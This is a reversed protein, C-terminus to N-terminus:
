TSNTIAGHYSDTIKGIHTHMDFLEDSKLISNKKMSKVLSSDEMLMNIKERLDDANRPEFLAGNYGDRVFEPNGGINSALVPAGAMMGEAIVVSANEYWISPIVIADARAYLSSLLDSSIKGLFIFNERMNYHDIASNIRELEQPHALGTIAVNFKKGSAKIGALAKVLYEGGKHITLHGSFQMLFDSSELRDANSIKESKAYIMEEIESIKKIHSRFGKIDFGHYIVDFKNRSYGGEIMKEAMFRSPTIIRKIGYIVNNKIISQRYPINGWFDYKNFCNYCYKKNKFKLCPINEKTFLMNNPCLLWYDHLTMVSPIKYKAVYQVPSISLGSLNHFHVIDPDLSKILSNINEFVRKNFLQSYSKLIPFHSNKPYIRHVNIGDIQYEAFKEENESVHPHGVIVDVEHGAMKLGLATQHAVAEAGGIMLPPFFNTVILIKM